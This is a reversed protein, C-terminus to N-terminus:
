GPLGNQGFAILPRTVSVPEVPPVNEDVTPRFILAVVPFIVGLVDVGPVYTTVYVIGAAFPHGANVVVVDSVIASTTGGTKVTGAFILMSQAALVNGPLVPVAVTV